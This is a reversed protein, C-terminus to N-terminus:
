KRYSNVTSATETIRMSRVPRFIPSRVLKFSYFVYAMRVLNRYWLSWLTQPEGTSLDCWADVVYDIVLKGRGISILVNSIM